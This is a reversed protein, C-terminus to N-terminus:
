SGDARRPTIRRNWCTQALSISAIMSINVVWIFPDGLVLWYLVLGVAVGLLLSGVRWRLPMLQRRGLERMAADRAHQERAPATAADFAAEAQERTLPM